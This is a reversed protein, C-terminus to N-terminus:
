RVTFEPSTAILVALRRLANEINTIGHSRYAALVGIPGMVDAVLADMADPRLTYGVMRGVWYEVILIASGTVNAPTQAAFSTRFSPHDLVDFMLNWFQLNAAGALWHADIDPHGDPTPWAFVGDGVSSLADFAGDYANVVTGTTRFLAILREYPRRVKSAPLGINEDLLIESLVRKIQDPHDRSALWVDKARAVVAQPPADGFIRRCLKTCIFEATAPHDALIDLVRRGQAMPATLQSLDVGMFMGAQTNHQLPNYTFQGTFPLPGNPGDQGHELTWGSFARAATVVDADTFGLAVMIGAAPVAAPVPGTVGLYAARGLTHLELLERAYNETPKAAGSAANSLYRLMSASTAVAELLDRFNGFVRPRIVAADYAALAAAGYIDEQRGVNFHNNWFDAIFERAQFRAHTNRIWTAANLEQQIRARENPAISIETKSVMDWISPLDAYLYGLGRREDVAPWGPSSGAPLQVAYSIRMSRSRLHADLLEEDGAPPNLQEDVWAAWGIKKVYQVDLDRAGFTIRNLALTEFSPTSSLM